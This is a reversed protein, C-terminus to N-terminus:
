FSRAAAGWFHRGMEAALEVARGDDTGFPVVVLGGEPSYLKILRRVAEEPLPSRGGGPLPWIDAAWERAEDPTLAAGSMGTPRKSSWKQGVIVQSLHAGSPDSIVLDRRLVFSEELQKTVNAAVPVCTGRWVEYHVPLNVVIYGGERLAGRCRVWVQSAYQLWDNLWESYPRHPMPPLSTIVLDAKDVISGLLAVCDEGEAVVCCQFPGLCKGCGTRLQRVTVSKEERDNRVAFM